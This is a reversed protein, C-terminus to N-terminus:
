RKSYWQSWCHLRRAMGDAVPCLEAGSVGEHHWTLYAIISGRQWGAMQQWKVSGSDVLWLMVTIQLVKHLSQPWETHFQILM